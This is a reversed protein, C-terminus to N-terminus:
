LISPGLIDPGYYSWETLYVIRPLLIASTTYLLQNFRVDETNTIIFCGFFYHSLDFKKEEIHLTGTKVTLLRPLIQEPIYDATIELSDMKLVRLEDLLHDGRSGIRAKVKGIKTGGFSSLLGIPCSYCDYYELKLCKIQNVATIPLPSTANKISLNEIVTGPRKLIKTLFEYGENEAPEIGITKEISTNSYKFSDLSYSLKSYKSGVFHFQSWNDEEIEANRILFPINKEIARFKRNSRALRIRKDFELFQTVAELSLDSLPPGFKDTNM